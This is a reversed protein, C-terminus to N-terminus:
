LFGDQGASRRTSVPISSRLAIDPKVLIALDSNTTISALASRNPIGLKSWWSKCKLANTVKNTLGNHSHLRKLQCNMGSCHWGRCGMRLARRGRNLELISRCLFTERVGIKMGDEVGVTVM